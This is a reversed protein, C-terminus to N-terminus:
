GQRARLTNERDLRRARKQSTSAPQKAEYQGIEESVGLQDMKRYLSSLGVNLARATAHKDFSKDRLVQSIYHREFAQVASKLDGQWLGKDFVQKTVFSLDEEGILTGDSFIIAREIVNQLERVNGPWPYEMMRQMAQNSVGLCGKNLERCYKSVFHAVLLPIDEYRKRLPPLHIEVVNLRYYLDERFRGAEVEKLLDCSTACLIRANVDITETSGIPLVKKEEIARLLKVQIAPIMSCIEDLFVTGGDGMLFLGVKDRIAGTFAGRKYGFLESEALSEPLAGCNIAVFRGEKTIGNYHIARAVLEKGTGSEGSILASSRTQALKKVMDLAQHLIRSTGVIGEFHHRDELERLLFQREDTLTRMNLLRSIKILIDDFIFPKTVYDSAGLKVAEVAGEVTGFATIIIVQTGLSREQMKTLVELGDMKPMRIDLLAVDINTTELLEVAQQGDSATVVKYGAESLVNTLTERITSEDDAILIRKQM